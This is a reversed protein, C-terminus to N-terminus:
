LSFLRKKQMEGFYHSRNTVRLLWLDSMLGALRLYLSFSKNKSM